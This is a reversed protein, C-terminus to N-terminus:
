GATEILIPAVQGAVQALSLVDDWWSQNRLPIGASQIMSFREWEAANVRDAIVEGGYQTNQNPPQACLWRSHYSKLNIRGSDGSAYLTWQEWIDPQERDCIARGSLEACLWRNTRYNQLSIKGGPWVYINWREEEGVNRVEQSAHMEGDTHAQLLRGHWSIFEFQGIFNM